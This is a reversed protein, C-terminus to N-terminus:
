VVKKLHSNRYTIPLLYCLSSHLRINNYSNEYDFLELRLDNMNEFVHQYVFEVKFTKFTAETVTKDYPCGKKSLSRDIDFTDLIGDITNNKFKNGRDAHFISIRSLDYKITVFAQYALEADKNLSTSYGIIERNHLDLILCVYNWKGVVRVYTLDSVVVDLLDRNDLKKDVINSVKDENSISKHPKYKAITYCSVLDNEAM